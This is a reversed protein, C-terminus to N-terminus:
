VGQATKKVPCRCWAWFLLALRRFIRPSGMWAQRMIESERGDLGKGGQEDWRRIELGDEEERKLQVKVDM